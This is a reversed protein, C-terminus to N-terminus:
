KKGIWKADEPNEFVNINGGGRIKMEEEEEFVKKEWKEISELVDELQAMTKAVKDITIFPNKYQDGNKDILEANDLFSIIKNVRQRLSILYRMSPTEQLLRYKEIGAKVYQDPEYKANGFIDIAVQSEKSLGYADYESRFDAIFYIYAVEKLFKKKGTSHDRDYLMMFEPIMLIRPNVNIKEGEYTFLSYPNNKIM